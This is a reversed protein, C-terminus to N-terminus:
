VGRFNGPAQFVGVRRTPSRIAARTKEGIRGDGPLVDLGVPGYRDTVTRLPGYRDTVTRLPGYRNSRNGPRTFRVYSQFIVM